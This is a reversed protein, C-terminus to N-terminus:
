AAIFSIQLLLPRLFPFLIITLLQHKQNNLTCRDFRRQETPSRYPNRACLKTCETESKFLQRWTEFSRDFRNVTSALGSGSENLSYDILSVVYLICRTKSTQGAIVNNWECHFHAQGGVDILEFKKEGNHMGIHKELVQTPNRILLYDEERPLSFGQEFVHDEHRLCM